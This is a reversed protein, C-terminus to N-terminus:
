SLEENAWASMAEKEDGEIDMREFCHLIAAIRGQDYLVNLHEEPDNAKYYAHLVRDFEQLFGKSYLSEGKLLTRAYLANFPNDVTDHAYLPLQKPDVDERIVWNDNDYSNSACELIATVADEYEQMLFYFVNDRKKM